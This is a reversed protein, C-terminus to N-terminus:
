LLMRDAKPKTYLEERKKKLIQITRINGIVLLAGPLGFLEVFAILPNTGKIAFVVTTTVSMVAAAIDTRLLFRKQQRTALELREIERLLEDSYDKSSSENM